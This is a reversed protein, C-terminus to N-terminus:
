RGRTLSIIAGFVGILALVLIILGLPLGSRAEGTTFNEEFVRPLGATTERGRLIVDTDRFSLPDTTPEAFYEWGINRGGTMALRGNVVLIKSHDSSALAIPNLTLFADAFRFRFPRFTKVKVNKRAVLTDLYDNGSLDLSLRTGLGDLLIRIPVGERAKHLLHGLFSLGFIDEHLIFYSVDLSERAEAVLRWRAAWAESNEELLEIRTDTDGRKPFTEFVDRLTKGEPAPLSVRGEGERFRDGLLLNGALWAAVLLIALVPLAIKLVRRTKPSTGV